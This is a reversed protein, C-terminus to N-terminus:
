NPAGATLPRLRHDFGVCCFRERVNKRQDHAFASTSSELVMVTMSPLGAFGMLSHPLGEAKSCELERGKEETQPEQTKTKKRREQVIKWQKLTRQLSSSDRGLSGPQGRKKRLLKNYDCVLKKIMHKPSRLYNNKNDLRLSIREKATSLSSPSSLVTGLTWSAIHTHRKYVRWIM